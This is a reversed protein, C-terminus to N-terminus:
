CIPSDSFSFLCCGDCQNLGIWSILNCSLSYYSFYSSIFRRTAQLHWGSIDSPSIFNSQRGRWYGSFGRCGLAADVLLCVSWCIELLTGWITKYISGNYWSVCMLDFRAGSLLMYAYDICKNLAGSMLLLWNALAKCMEESWTRRNPQKFVCCVSSAWFVLM